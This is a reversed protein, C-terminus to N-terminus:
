EIKDNYQTEALPIVWVWDNTGPDNPGVTVAWNKGFTGACEGNADAEAYAKRSIPAGLRKLDFWAAGEGWLEMRRTLLIQDILAQGSASTPTYADDRAGNLEDLLAKAAAEDPSAQKCLAEAEILYMEGARMFCQQSVGPLAFVAFKLQGYISPRNPYYTAAGYAKYSPLEAMYDLMKGRLAAGEATKVNAQAYAVVTEGYVFRDSPFLNQHFFLKKRVDTDPFQDVLERNGVTNNNAGFSFYGNYAHYAGFSYYWMNEEESAFGGYIWEGNAECFGGAYEDQTMLKYGDRAAHAAEAATEWDERALAARAKVGYAMGIGPLYFDSSEIGSSKFLEIANDCDTYIQEYCKALTALEQSGTSAELRLVVGDSAGNNSDMWRKGFIQVLYTYAYARYTLAQAKYLDRLGADGEANDIGSLVRNANGIVNYLFWWAYGSYAANNNVCLKMNSSNYGGLQEVILDNGCMDGLRMLVTSMGCYGQGYNGQQTIMLQSIGNIVSGYGSVDADLQEDEIYSGAPATELYDDSCSTGALLSALVFTYKLLTKM